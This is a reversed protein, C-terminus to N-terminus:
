VEYVPKWGGQSVCCCYDKHKATRHMEQSPDPWAEATVAARSQNAAFTFSGAIALIDKPAPCGSSTSSAAVVAMMAKPTVTTVAAPLKLSPSNRLSSNQSREIVLEIRTPDWRMPAQKTGSSSCTTHSCQASAHPMLGALTGPAIVTAAVSEFSM